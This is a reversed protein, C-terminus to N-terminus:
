TSMPEIVQLTTVDFTAGGCCRGFTSEDAYSSPSLLKHRRDTGLGPLPVSGEGGGGVHDSEPSAYYRYHM